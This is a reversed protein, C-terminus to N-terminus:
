RRGGFFSKWGVARQAPEKKTGSIVVPLPPLPKGPPTATTAAKVGAQTMVRTKATIKTTPREQDGQQVEEAQPSASAANIRATQAAKMAGTKVTRKMPAAAREGPNGVRARIARTYYAM